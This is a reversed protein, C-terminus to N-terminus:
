AGVRAIRLSFHIIDWIHLNSSVAEMLERGVLPLIIPMYNHDTLAGAILIGEHVFEDVFHSQPIYNSGDIRQEFYATMGSSPHVTLNKGVQGSSNAIGQSLLFCPSPIAGGALVVADARISVYKGGNVAKARIGVARGKEILVRDARLETVCMAGRELAKPMYSLNTSQRADTRCGFDCFGSGDCGPANRLMPGHHWGLADAGRAIVERMPGAFKEPAADVQITREVKEFFATCRARVLTRVGWRESGDKSCLTPPVFAVLPISRQQDM